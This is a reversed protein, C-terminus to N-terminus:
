ARAGQMMAIIAEVARATAGQQAEFVQRGREGMAKAASRDTLLTKLAVELEIEDKVIQIGNADLMKRVIDRFNEYSEGMLVPVGFQAPELPNHGGRKFM